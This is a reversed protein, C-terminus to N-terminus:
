EDGSDGKTLMEFREVWADRLAIVPILAVYEGPREVREKTEGTLDFVSAMKGIYEPKTEYTVITEREANAPMVSSAADIAASLEDIMGALMVRLQENTM